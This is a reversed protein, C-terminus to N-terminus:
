ISRLDPEACDTKQSRVRTAHQNRRVRRLSSIQLFTCAHRHADKVALGPGRCCEKKRTGLGKQFVGTSLVENNGCYFASPRAEARGARASARGETLKWGRARFLTQSRSPTPICAPDNVGLRSLSLADALM